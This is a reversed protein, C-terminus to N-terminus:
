GRGLLLAALWAPLSMTKGGRRTAAPGDGDLTAVARRTEVRSLRHREYAAAMKRDYGHRAFDPGNYGRAFAKWDRERIAKRLGARDIYRVMLRVQGGIGARAEAVLADVSAYGLWAWHAGMVQGLGWSVSEHAAKRDVAEARALLRWRAPQTAPNAIAGAQPSALGAARAAQRKRDSLRRDFYHGEFRIVPEDRGDIVAYARGASEVEAIALLAAPEIGFEVAVAVIEATVNKPFM